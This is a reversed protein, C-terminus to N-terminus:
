APREFVDPRLDWTKIKGDTHKEIHPCYQPPIGDVADELWYHVAPQTVGLLKAAKTQGGLIAIAQVLKNKM